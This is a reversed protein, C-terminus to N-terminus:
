VPAGGGSEEEKEEPPVEELEIEMVRMLETGFAMSRGFSSEPIHVRCIYALQVGGSCQQVFRELIFLEQLAPIYSRRRKPDAGRPAPRPATLHAKMCVTGGVKFRFVEDLLGALQNGDM